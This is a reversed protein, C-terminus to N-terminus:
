SQLGLLSDCKRMQFYLLSKAMKRSFNASDTKDVKKICFLISRREPDLSSTADTSLSAQM